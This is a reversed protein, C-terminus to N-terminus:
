GIHVIRHRRADAAQRDAAVPLNIAGCDSQHSFASANCGTGIKRDFSPDVKFCVNV